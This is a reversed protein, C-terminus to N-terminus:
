LPDGDTNRTTIGADSLLVAGAGGRDAKARVVIDKVGVKGGRAWVQRGQTGRVQRGARISFLVLLRSYRSEWRTAPEPPGRKLSRALQDSVKGLLM